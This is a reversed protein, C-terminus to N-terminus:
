SLLEEGHVMNTGPNKLCVGVTPVFEMQVLSTDAYAILVNGIGIVSM